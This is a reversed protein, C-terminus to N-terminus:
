VTLARYSSCVGPTAWFPGSQSRARCGDRCGGGVCVCQEACAALPWCHCHGGATAARDVAWGCTTQPRKPGSWLSSTAAAPRNGHPRGDQVLQGLFAELSAWIAPRSASETFWNNCVEFCSTQKMLGQWNFTPCFAHCLSLVSADECGPFGKSFQMHVSAITNSLDAPNKPNPSDTFSLLDSPVNRRITLCICSCWDQCVQAVSLAQM